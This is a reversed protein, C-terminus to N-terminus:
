QAEGDLLIEFTEHRHRSLASAIAERAEAFDDDYAGSGWSQDVTRGAATITHSHQVRSRGEGSAPDIRIRVDVGAGDGLRDAELHIRGAGHLCRLAHLWVDVVVDPDLPKGELDVVRAEVARRVGEDKCEIAVSCVRNALRNALAELDERAAHDRPLDRLRDEIWPLAGLGFTELRVIGERRKAADLADAVIGIATVVGPDRSRVDPRPSEPLPELGRTRRWANKLGLIRRDRLRTPVTPDFDYREPWTTALRIAALDANRPDCFSVWRDRLRRSCSARTRHLDDLLVILIGEIEREIAPKSPPDARGLLVGLDDISELVASRVPQPQGLLDRAVTRVARLDGSGLLFGAM